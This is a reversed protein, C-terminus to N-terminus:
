SHIYPKRETKSFLVFWQIDTSGTKADFISRTRYSGFTSQM